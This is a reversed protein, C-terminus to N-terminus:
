LSRELLKTMVVLRAVALQADAALVDESSHRELPVEATDHDARVLVENKRQIDFREKFENSKFEVEVDPGVGWDDRGLKKMADRSKVRQGSPLHYYAM